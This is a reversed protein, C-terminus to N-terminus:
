FGPPRLGINLGAPSGALRGGGPAERHRRDQLGSMLAPRGARGPRDEVEAPVERFAPRTHDHRTTGPRQEGLEDSAGLLRAELVTREVVLRSGRETTAELVQDGSLAHVQHVAVGGVIAARQRPKPNAASQRLCEHDGAPRHREGPKGLHGGHTEGGIARDRHAGRDGIRQTVSAMRRAGKAHHGVADREIAQLFSQRGRSDGLRSRVKGLHISKWHDGHESPVLILAHQDIRQLMDLTRDQESSPM